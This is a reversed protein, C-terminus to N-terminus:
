RQGEANLRNQMCEALAARTRHLLVSVANATMELRSAIERTRLDEEYRLTLARRAKSQLEDLCRDLASKYAPTVAQQEPVAQALADLTQQSFVVKSMAHTRRHNLVRNRAIALAWRLFPTDPDYKDFDRAVAIAVQQTLDEADHFNPVAAYLYASIAPQHTHWLEALLAREDSQERPCMM